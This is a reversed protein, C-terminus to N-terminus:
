PGKTRSLQHELAPATDVCAFGSEGTSRSRQAEEGEAGNSASLLMVHQFRGQLDLALTGDARQEVKLGESSRSLRNALKDVVVPKSPPTQLGPEVQDQSRVEENQPQASGSCGSLAVCASLWLPLSSFRRLPFMLPCRPQRVASRELPQASTVRPAGGAM